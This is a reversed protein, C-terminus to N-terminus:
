VCGEKVLIEPLRRAGAVVITGYRDALGTANTLHTWSNETVVM